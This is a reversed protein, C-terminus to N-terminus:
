RPVTVCYKRKSVEWRYFHYEENRHFSTSIWKMQNLKLQCRAFVKSVCLFPCFVSELTKEFCNTLFIPCGFYAILTRKKIDQWYIVVGLACHVIAATNILSNLQRSGNGSPCLLQQWWSLTSKNIVTSICEQIGRFGFAIVRHLGCGAAAAWKYHSRGVRLLAAPGM